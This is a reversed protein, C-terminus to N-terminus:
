SVRALELSQSRRPQRPDAVIRHSGLRRRAPNGPLSRRRRWVGGHFSCYRELRRAVSVSTRIRFPYHWLENGDSPDIAVLGRKVIFLAQAQGHITALVPTSHSVQDSGSKWLLGGDNIRFALYCQNRGGGAVVVRDGVILPAAANSWRIGEAGFEDMLDRKWVIKGDDSQLAYLDFGGGFVFVRDEHYTPTARPGDGGDNGAAGREGGGDYAAVGLTTEWVIEGTTRDVAGATERKQGNVTRPLVTYAKGGGTVFSGLGGDASIEWVQRPKGPQWDFSVEEDTQRDHNQGTITPWDASFTRVPGALLIVAVVVSPITKRKM